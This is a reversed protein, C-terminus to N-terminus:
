KVKIWNFNSKPKTDNPKIWEPLDLSNLLELLKFELGVALKEYKDAMKLREESIQETKEPTILYVGNQSVKAVGLQLYYSATYYSTIIQVQDFINQYDADFTTQNNEFILKEYLMRGLIRKLETEQAMFIFPNISDNDINGDFATLKVMEEITIFLKNM